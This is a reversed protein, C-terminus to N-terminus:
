RRCENPDPNNTTAEIEARLKHLREPSLVLKEMANVSEHWAHNQDVACTGRCDEGEPLWAVLFSKPDADAIRRDQFYVSHADRLYDSRCLDKVGAGHRLPVMEVSNPDAKPVVRDQYLVWKGDTAYITPVVTLRDIRRLTSLNVPPSTDEVKQWNYILNHGDSVYDGDLYASLKEFEATGDIPDLEITRWRKPPGFHPFCAVGIMCHSSDRQVQEFVRYIKSDIRAYSKGGVDRTDLPQKCSRTPGKIPNLEKDRWYVNCDEIPVSCRILLVAAIGIVVLTTPSRFM